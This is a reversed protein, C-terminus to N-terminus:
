NIASNWCQQQEGADATGREINEILLGDKIAYIAYGDFINIQMTQQHAEFPMGFQGRWEEPYIPTKVRREKGDKFTKQYTETATLDFVLLHNNNARIAKGLLKYRYSPNWGMLEMVKASFLRCNTQKPKRKGNSIYCWAFSDRTAEQCPRLALIKTDQNILVQVYNYDPFKGLCAANVHFKGDNFTIAPEFTHAFFERRVVEFGEFDFTKRMDVSDIPMALPEEKKRTDDM